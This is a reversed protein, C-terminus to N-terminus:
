QGHYEIHVHEGGAGVREDFVRCEHRPALYALVALFAGMQEGTKDHTRFDLARGVKHLSTPVHEGDRGSTIVLPEGFLLFHLYALLAALQMLAPEVGEIEVENSGPLLIEAIPPIASAPATKGDSM